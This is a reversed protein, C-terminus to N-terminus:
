EISELPAPPLLPQDTMIGQGIAPQAREETNHWRFFRRKSPQPEVEMESATPTSPLFHRPMVIEDHEPGALRKLCLRVWNVAAALYEDNLKQWQALENM